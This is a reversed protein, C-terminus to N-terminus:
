FFAGLSPSSCPRAEAVCHLAGLSSDCQIDRNKASRWTTFDEGHRAEVKTRWDKVARMKALQRKLLRPAYGSAKGYAKVKPRCHDAAAVVLESRASVANGMSAVSPSAGASSITSTAAVLIAVTAGSIKSRVSM